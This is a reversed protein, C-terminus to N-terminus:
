DRRINAPVFDNCNHFTYRMCTPYQRLVGDMDKAYATMEGRNACIQCLALSPDNPEINGMNPVEITATARTPTSGISRKGSCM